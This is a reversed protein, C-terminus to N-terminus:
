PIAGDRGTLRRLVGLQGAHYSEHFALFALQIAVAEEGAMESLMEDSASMLADVVDQHSSRWRELLTELSVAAGADTIPASGRQYRNVKEDEWAPTLGLLRHISNRTILMHGVVWNICNGGPAPQLVSDEHSIGDLNRNVTLHNTEFQKALLRGTV